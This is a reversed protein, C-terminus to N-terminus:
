RILKKFQIKNSVLEYNIPELISLYLKLLKIVITTAIILGINTILQTCASESIYYLESLSDITSTCYNTCTATATTLNRFRDM